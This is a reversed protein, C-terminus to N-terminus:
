LYHKRIRWLALPAKVFDIPKMRSEGVEHWERVPVEVIGQKQSRLILELDFLWNSVFIESFLVPIQSARFLKAGCQSDYSSVHLILTVLTAFIRGMIHRIARREVQAGLRKVRSGFASHFHRNNDLVDLLDVITELPASLDADLFAIHDFQNNEAATMMGVRVAEAKGANEPLKMVQWRAAWEDQFSKLLTLTEDTSGDDVFLLSFHNHSKLFARFRDPKIRGAENYCPIVICCTSM